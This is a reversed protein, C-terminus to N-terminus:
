CYKRISIFRNLEKIADDLRKQFTDRVTEPTKQLNEERQNCDGMESVELGIVIHNRLM